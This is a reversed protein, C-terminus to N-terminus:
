EGEVTELPKRRRISMGILLLLLVVNAILSFTTVTSRHTHTPGAGGAAKQAATIESGDPNHEHGHAADLAEKLSVSGKGAFALSYAGETVVKDGPFLGRTIEVFRDNMAGVEVAVKVFANPVTEDTVYVFRNAAEGQLAKRPVSMVGERRGTVISFEARMGPRLKGKPNEIHFAAEMTGSKRDVTAGVHEIKAVWEDDPWGPVGIRTVQGTQIRGALHEPIAAVGYVSELNVIKLLARDPTIPEGPVVAIESIIGAIPATLTVQPPPTGPQRSEMVVLPQDKKVEHDPMASVSIARGPIRSSVVASFGPRVEIRGLAFITEEFVQEEVEVTKVRLNKVGTEDLFVTNALKAAKLSQANTAAGYVCASLFVAAASVV